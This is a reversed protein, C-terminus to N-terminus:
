LKLHRIKSFFKAFQKNKWKLSVFCRQWHFHAGVTLVWYKASYKLMVRRTRSGFHEWKGDGLEFRNSSGVQQSKGILYIRLLDCLGISKCEWCNRYLSCVSTINPFPYHSSSNISHQLSKNEDWNKHKQQTILHNNEERRWRQNEILKFRWIRQQNLM